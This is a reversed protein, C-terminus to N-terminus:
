PWRLNSRRCLNDTVKRNGRWKDPAVMQRTKLCPLKISLRAASRKFSKRKRCRLILIKQRTRAELQVGPSRNDAGASNSNLLCGHGLVLMNNFHGIGNNFARRLRRLNLVRIGSNFWSWFSLRNIWRTRGRAPGTSLAHLFEDTKSAFVLAFMAQFGPPLTTPLQNLKAASVLDLM